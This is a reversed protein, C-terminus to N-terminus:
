GRGTYEPYLENTPDSQWYQETTADMITLRSGHGAGTDLDHIEYCKLPRSSKTLSQTCSHGLFVKDYKTIHTRKTTSYKSKDYAHQILRRDWQLTFPDQNEIPENPNFGGHVYLRNQDDVYYNVAQDLLRKTIEHFEYDYSKLSAAGGQSVWIHPMAGNRLWEYLWVDHNGIIVILNDKPIVSLYQFIEKTQPLGDCLDGLVILRDDNPRYGCREFCQLMALYSGHPDALVLTRM